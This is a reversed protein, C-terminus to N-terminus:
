LNLFVGSLNFYVQNSTCWSLSLGICSCSMSKYSLQLDSIRKFWCLSHLLSCSIFLLTFFFIPQSSHIILTSPNFHCWFLFYSIGLRQYNILQPKEMPLITTLLIILLINNFLNYKESQRSQPCIVRQLPFLLNLPVMPNIAATLTM